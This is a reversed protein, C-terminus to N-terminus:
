TQDSRLGPITLVPHGEPDIEAGEPLQGWPTVRGNEDVGFPLLRLRIHGEANSGAPEAGLGFDVEGLGTQVVYSPLERGSGVRRLESAIDVVQSISVPRDRNWIEQAPDGAVLLHHLEIGHRRCAASIARIEGPSLNIGALLLTCCYVTVGHRRLGDALRGHDPTLESQHCVVLELEIRLPDTAALRNGATLVALAQESLNGPATVATRSRIRVAAIQPIADIRDILWALRQPQELPDGASSWIVLDSIRQWSALEDIVEALETDSLALDLEARTSHVRRLPTRRGIEVQRQLERFHALESLGDATQYSPPTTATCRGRLWHRDGAAVMFRAELAGDSGQRAVGSLDLDPTFSALTETTYPTRLWLFRDDSRDEEVAWGTTGWDIKGFATATCFGPIARDSLDARLRAALRMGDDVTSRYVSNGQLPSCPMFVYHMEAGAGRLRQYLEVLEDGNSNTGGLLPTQVYVTIGSSVLEAILDLSRLSLEDPHIFHTAVEIRKGCRAARQQAEKLYRMWFRDHQTLLAPHYSLSRTALRLYGIHPVELLGEVACTLTPRNMFPDGGTLVVETLEPCSAIYEIGRQVDARTPSREQRCEKHKRFCFRCYVPCSMNLVMIVRNRYMREIVGSHFQGVWTHVLGQKELESVFPLYQCAVARSLRLQRLSHRSLRVPFRDLVEQLPRHESVPLPHRLLGELQQVSTVDILDDGPELLELVTLLLQHPMAVGNVKISRWDGVSGAELQSVLETFFGAADGTYGCIGLLRELRSEGSGTALRLAQLDGIVAPHCSRELLQEVADCLEGLRTTALGPSLDTSALAETVHHFM